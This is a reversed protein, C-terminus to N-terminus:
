EEESDSSKNQTSKPLHCSAHHKGDDGIHTSYRHRFRGQLNVMEGSVPSDEVSLGEDSMNLEDEISPIDLSPEVPADVFEKTIPDIYAKLGADTSPTVSVDTAEIPNPADTHFMWVFAVPLVLFLLLPLRRKM